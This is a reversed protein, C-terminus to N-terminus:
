HKWATTKTRQTRLFATYGFFIKNEESKKAVVSAMPNVARAEISVDEHNYVFELLNQGPLFLALIGAKQKSGDFEIIGGKMDATDAYYLGKGFYRVLNLTTDEIGSIQFKITQGFSATSILLFSLIVIIKM